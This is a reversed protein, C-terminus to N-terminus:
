NRVCDRKMITMLSKRGGICVSDRVTRYERKCSLRNVFERSYRVSVDEMDRLKAIHAAVNVADGFIDFRRENGGLIGGVFRGYHLGIVVSSLHVSAESAALALDQMTTACPTPGIGTVAIYETASGKVRTVGDGAASVCRDLVRVTKEFSSADLDKNLVAFLIGGNYVSTPNEGEVIVRQIDKPIANELLATNRRNADSVRVILEKLTENKQVSSFMYVNYLVNAILCVTTIMAVDFTHLPFRPYSAGTLTAPILLLAPCLVRTPISVSPFFMAVTTQMHLLCHLVNFASSDIPIVLAERYFLVSGVVHMLLFTVAEVREVVRFPIKLSTCSPLLTLLLGGSSVASIGVYAITAVACFFPDAEGSTLLTLVFILSFSVVSIFCMRLMPLREKYLREHDVNGVFCCLFGLISATKRKCTACKGGVNAIPPGLLEGSGSEDSSEFSQCSDSVRSSVTVSESEQDYKSEVLWANAEEVKSLQFKRECDSAAQDNCLLLGGQACAELRSAEWSADGLVDPSFLGSQTWFSIMQLPGVAVGVRLKIDQRKEEFRERMAWGSRVCSLGLNQHLGVCVFVWSDGSTKVKVLGKGRACTCFMTDLETLLSIIQTPRLSESFKTFGEVDNVLAGAMEWTKHFGDEPVIGKTVTRLCMNDVFMRQCVEVRHIRAATSKLRETSVLLARETNEVIWAVFLCFVLSAMSTGSYALVEGVGVQLDTELATLAWGNVALSYLVLTTNALTSVLVLLAAYPFVRIRYCVVIGFCGLHFSTESRSFSGGAEFLFMCVLVVISLVTHYVDVIEGLTATWVLCPRRENSKGCQICMLVSLVLDVLFMLGNGLCMGFMGAIVVPDNMNTGGAVGFLVSFVVLLLGVGVVGTLSEIHPGYHHSLFATEDDRCNRFRGLCPVVRWPKGVAASNQRAEEGFTIRVSELFSIDSDSTEM